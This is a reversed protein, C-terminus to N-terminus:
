EPTATQQFEYTRLYVRLQDIGMDGQAYRELTTQQAPAVMAYAIYDLSTYHTSGTTVVRPGAEVRGVGVPTMELTANDRGLLVVYQGQEPVYQYSGRFPPLEFALQLDGDVMIGVPQIDYRWFPLYRPDFVAVPQSLQPTLQVRVGGAGTNDPFMLDAERADLHMGIAGIVNEKGSGIFASPASDSLVPLTVSPIVNRSGQEINIWTRAAGFGHRAMDANVTLRYRGSPLNKSPVDGGGFGFAGEDDTLTRRELQPIAVSVRGVPQGFTDLVGGAVFTPRQRVQLSGRLLDQDGYVVDVLLQGGYAYDRAPYFAASTGQPLLSIVGPVPEHSRNVATLQYGKARLADTGFPDQDVYTFGHATEHIALELQDLSVAKNFFVTIPENPELDIAGNEPQMRVVRLPLTDERTVRVTRAASALLGGAGNEVNLRLTYDGPEGPLTLVGSILGNQAAVEGTADDKGEITLSVREDGALNGARASVTVDVGSEDTALYEAGDAPALWELSVNSALTLEVDVTTENGARDRAVVTVTKAEGAVLGVNVAFVYQDATEGASVGVDTGNISVTSLSTDTVAGRLLYPNEAVENAAPYLALDAIQINPADLDRAYVAVAVASQGLTDTAAIRVTMTSEGSPFTLTKQLYYGSSLLVPEGNVTVRDIAAETSLLAKINVRDSNLVSGNAPSRIDIQPPAINDVHPQYRLTRYRRILHEGVHGEVTIVNAGEALPLLASRFAFETPADTAAVSAPQDNVTVEPKGGAAESIVRGTIVAQPEDFLAGEVPTDIVMDIVVNPERRDVRAQIASRNGLGDLAAIELSNTGPELPVTVEWDDGSVSVGQEVGPLRDNSVTMEAVGSYDDTVTGSLTLADQETTRAAGGDLQIVPGQSDPVDNPDNPDSGAQQEDENSFGDGDRDPDSNDGIGDGDLDAWESADDPFVDEDNPHGDGDRDSDLADPTGDGDQDPPTSAADDPDFGLRVEDANSIGDGDRDLDSNDGIGDGDLDSWEAGDDPFADQDNPHGDGDRDDDLADPNGDGDNDPPTNAADNPDFGLQEEDANSIGDGDRDPDSNDGVGDGDMDAWEAANDPFVDQDNAHGDGDRDGDLADPTGDGDLDPPTSVPDDPDFGLQQEDDNAIGDGDRDPDSNDGIGDGDLDAWESGDDPFLDEANPHGDGDRDPDLSDPTGDGDQDPPTDNPDDPDFGLETEHANSIGDGDRDPDSNDGNGDGDLDSWEDMDDPFADEENPHGDGDRDPDLSDPVGDGDLDPPTSAPDDPNFGLEAEDANSIGDGDRDPDSNDGIGDGDLDSWEAGNDPFADSTNPYGDGDRDGDLSDPLGDGDLDPPTSGPDNPDFGLETEHDNAIGDGDRDPDSNDGIGDHDLDSWEGADDPFTDEQNNHGDGDRDQDLADPTGDGDLDPPTSTPDDPNFGLETEDANSIGDGDRDPDSNDGIGDGDLDSWETANDPFADQENPHGDGDRDADLADPVGDGDQDPPTSTPDDPDFGLQEEEDNAIGDGDRDPDFGDYVGDGDLDCLGAFDARALAEEDFIVEARSWLHAQAAGLAGQIRSGAGLSVDGNVYVFGKVKSAMPSALDGGVYMILGAADGAQNVQSGWRFTADGNVFLRATGKGEVVIRADTSLDLGDIWYDGAPLVWKAGTQVRVRGFRYTQEPALRLTSGPYLSLRRFHKPDSATLTRSQGLWLRLDGAGHNDPFTLAPFTPSPTGGAYCFEVGCSPEASIYRSIVQSAPLWPSPAQQVRASYEFTIRGDKAHSQLGAAFPAMCQNLSTDGPEPAQGSDGPDAPNGPDTGLQREDPNALGDGDRDHDLADLWDDGDINDTHPCLGDMLASTDAPDFTVRSYLGLAISSAALRGRLRALPGLRARGASYITANVDRLTDIELDGGLVMLFRSAEGSTNIEAGSPVSLGDSLFLRVPGEGIPEVRSSPGLTMEGIWYDGPALRLTSSGSLNLRGIYASHEPRLEVVSAFRTTVESFRSVEANDVTRRSFPPVAVVAGSSREYPYTPVTLAPVPLSSTCGVLGCAGGAGPGQVASAALESGPNNRLSSRRSFYVAGDHTQVGAQQWQPCVEAQAAGFLVLQLSAALICSAFSGLGKM